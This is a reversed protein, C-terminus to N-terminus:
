LPEYLEQGILWAKALSILQLSVTSLRVKVFGNGHAAIITADGPQPNPNDQPCNQKLHLYLFRRTERKYCTSVGSCASM